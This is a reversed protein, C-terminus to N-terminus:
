KTYIDFGSTMVGRKEKTIMYAEFGSLNEIFIIGKKGMAFAATAFRDAEYINPGVITISVIEDVTKKQVPDVIHAGREYTGSTAVGKNSVHIAKVIEKPNFPNKIGVSWKEGSENVGRTEIDGAIEVFFNKFGKQKLMEAGHYIAYGKVLGSPDIKGDIFIDFYGNTERKTQKCLDLIKKVEESADELELNGNNIKSIESTSKYTSFQEDVKRFYSFVEEIDQEMIGEHVVNITAPMGM